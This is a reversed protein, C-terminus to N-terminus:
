DEWDITRMVAKQWGKYLSDREALDMTPEFRKDLQWNTLLEEKTSWVGVALGALYAAGLAAIVTSKPREVSVGLIDAQFQM